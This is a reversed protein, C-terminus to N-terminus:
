CFPLYSVPCVKFKFKFLRLLILKLVAGVWGHDVLNTIVHAEGKGWVGGYGM